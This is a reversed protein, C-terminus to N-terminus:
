RRAEPEAALLAALCIAISLTAAAEITLMMAYAAAPGPYDLFRGSAVLGVLGAVLFAGAGAPAGFRLFRGRRWVPAGPTTAELLILAGALTAGAQFAGGPRSSGNWLLYGAVLVLAPALLAATAQAVPGTLPAPPGIRPPAAGVAAVALAVIALELFTDYGRYDLLVATVPNSVGTEALNAAAAAELGPAEPQAVVLAFLM